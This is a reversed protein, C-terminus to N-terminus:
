VGKSAAMEKKKSRAKNGAQSTSCTISGFLEVSSDYAPVVLGVVKKIAENKLWAMPSSTALTYGLTAYIVSSTERAKEQVLTETKPLLYHFEPISKKTTVVPPSCHGIPRIGAEGQYRM